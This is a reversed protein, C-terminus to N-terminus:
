EDDDDPGFIWLLAPIAFLAITVPTSFGYYVGYSAVLVTLVLTLFYAMPFRGPSADTPM